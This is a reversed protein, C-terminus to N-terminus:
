LSQLAIGPPPAGPRAREAGSGRAPGRGPAPVRTGGRFMPAGPPPAIGRRASTSPPAPVVGGPVVCQRGHAVGPMGQGLEQEGRSLDGVPPEPLGPLLGRAPQAEDPESPEGAPSDGIPSSSTRTWGVSLAMARQRCAAAGPPAGPRPGPCRLVQRDDLAGPPRRMAPHRVRGGGPGGCGRPPRPERPLAGPEAAPDPPGRARGRVRGHPLVRARRRGHGASRASGPAGRRLVSVARPRRRPHIRWRPALPAPVRTARPASARAPRGARPHRTGTRGGAPVGTAEPSGRVLTGRPPQLRGSRVRRTM